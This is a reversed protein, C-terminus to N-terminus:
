VVDTPDGRKVINRAEDLYLKDDYQTLILMALPVTTATKFTVVFDLNGALNYHDHFGNCKDPSFDFPYVNFTKAWDEASINNGINNTRVGIEDQFRRYSVAYDNSGFDQKYSCIKESNCFFAVESIDHNAFLLPDKKKDGNLAGADVFALLAGNPIKKRFISHTRAEMSGQPVQFVKMDSRLFPIIMDEGGSLRASHDKLVRDDLTVRRSILKLDHFKVRAATGKDGYYLFDDPAKTLRINLDLRNPLFRDTNLVDLQLPISFAVKKGGTFLDRRYKWGVNTKDYKDITALTDPSWISTAKLVGTKIDSGYSLQAEIYSKINDYPQTVYNVLSQNFYLEKMSWATSPIFNLPAVDQSDDAALNEETGDGKVHVMSIYGNLRFGECDIYTDGEAPLYFEFPGSENESVPRHVSERCFRSSKEIPPESFLDVGSHVFEDATKHFAGVGRFTDEM